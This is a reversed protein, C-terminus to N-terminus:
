LSSTLFIIFIKARAPISGSHTADYHANWWQAVPVMPLIVTFPM